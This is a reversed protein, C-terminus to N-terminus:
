LKRRSGKLQQRAIAIQEAAERREKSTDKLALREKVEKRLQEIQEETAQAKWAEHLFRPVPIRTGNHVAYSRWSQPWQRAHGGIGPRRSMRIFPPEWQYLLEGTEQDVISRTHGKWGIKKATYGATYAIAAPTVDVTLTHGKGWTEHILEEQATSPGYLIAHYHPRHNTEGYEGAAFFRLHRATGPTKRLRERLRKLWLQLDTPELSRFEPLHTDDYTLTTFVAHRHQELELHCRLAWARAKDQNCGLCNGCPLWLVESDAPERGLSVAGSRTRYGRHPHYCAM